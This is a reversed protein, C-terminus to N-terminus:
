RTIDVQMSNGQEWKPVQQSGDKKKKKRKKM